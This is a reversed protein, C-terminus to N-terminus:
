YTKSLRLLWKSSKKWRILLCDANLDWKWWILFRQLSNMSNKLWNMLQASQTLWFWKLWTQLVSFKRKKWLLSSTIMSLKTQSHFIKSMLLIEQISPLKFEKLTSQPSPPRTLRLLPIKPKSSIRLRYNNLVRKPCLM